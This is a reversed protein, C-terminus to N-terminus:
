LFVLFDYRDIFDILYQVRFGYSVQYPEEGLMEFFSKHKTALLLGPKTESRSHGSKVTGTGNSAFRKSGWAFDAM